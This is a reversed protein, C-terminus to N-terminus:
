QDEESRKSFEDQAIRNSNVAEILQRAIQRKSKGDEFPVRTVEVEINLFDLFFKSSKCISKTKDPLKKAAYSDKKKALKCIKCISDVGFKGNSKKHFYKLPMKEGCPGSCTKSQQMTHVSAPDITQHFSPTEKNM